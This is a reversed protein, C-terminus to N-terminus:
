DTENDEEKDEGMKSMFRKPSEPEKYIDFCKLTRNIDSLEFQLNDFKNNLERLITFLPNYEIINKASDRYGAEKSIKQLYDRDVQKKKFQKAIKRIKWSSLIYKIGAISTIGTFILGLIGIIIELSLKIM